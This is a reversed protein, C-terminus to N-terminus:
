AVGPLNIFVRLRDGFAYHRLYVGNSTNGEVTDYSRVHGASDAHIAIVFGIHGADGLFAMLSGVRIKASLLNHEAAWRYTPLVAWPYPSFPIPRYGGQLFSWEQFIECWPLGCGLRFAAFYKNISPGCNWSTEHNGVQSLEVARIKLALPKPEVLEALKLRQAALAVWCPPRTVKGKLLAFFWPTVIPTLKSARAGCQGKAPFGLRYRFALLGHKTHAGYIGRTYATLTPKAKGGCRPAYKNPCHGSLMWQLAAVRPGRSGPHLNWTDARKAPARPGAHPTAAAATIAGAAAAATALLLLLPRRM